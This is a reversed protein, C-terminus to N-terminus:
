DEHETCTSKDDAATSANSQSCKSHDGCVVFCPLGRGMGLTLQSDPIIQDAPIALDFSINPLLTALCAKMEIVALRKGLCERPGANFAAYEYSTPLEKRELWRDPRFIAADDGWIQTDRGMAYINYVVMTGRRVVTGDPWIDDKAACKADVPVSPYLRLAENLVAELYKLEKMDEYAPGRVGCVDSIEQRVKNMVEPHQVLCFITWSLAQATTDRGAILFNLVLDRLFTESLEEGKKKADQLFLGVFSKRAELDEWAVGNTKKSDRAMSACLERVIKLTFTNLQDMHTCTDRESGIGFFRLARWFPFFFREVMMQQAGDFSILFPSSPDGLSDISKGFGIEGITDLTFRNMLNFIDLPKGPEACELISRTKKANRNVVTWIHEKFLKATFMHSSVKRQHQWEQGDSNFIGRGLLEALNSRFAAGKPYNDFNTKLIHEVNRPCTTSIQWPAFISMNVAFTRGYLSHKKVSAEMMTKSKALRLFELVSGFLWHSPVMQVNQPKSRLRQMMRWLLIAVAAATVALAKPANAKSMSLAM